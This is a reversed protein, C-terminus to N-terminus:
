RHRTSGAGWCATTGEYPSHFPGHAQFIINAQGAIFYRSGDPHPFFTPGGDGPGGSASRASHSGTANCGGAGSRDVAVCCQGRGAAAAEVTAIGFLLLVLLVPMRLAALRSATSYLLVM